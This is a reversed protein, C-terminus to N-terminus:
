RQIDGKRDPTSNPKTPSNLDIMLERSQRHRRPEDVPYDAVVRVARREPKGPVLTVVIKVSAEDRSSLESAAIAWTEGQYGPDGALRSAARDLGSEALWEAQLRRESARLDAHRLWIVRLLSGSLIVLVILVAVIAAAVMGRRRTAYEARIL